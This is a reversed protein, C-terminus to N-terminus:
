IGQFVHTCTFYIFQVEQGATDLIDLMSTEDDINVQKRYSNELFITLLSLKLMGVLQLTM